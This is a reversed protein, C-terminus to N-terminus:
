DSWQDDVAKNAYSSLTNTDFPVFPWYKVNGQLHLFNSGGQPALPGIGRDHAWPHYQNYADDGKKWWITKAGDSRSGEGM